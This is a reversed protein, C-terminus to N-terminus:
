MTIRRIIARLQVPTPKAIARITTAILQFRSPLDYTTVPALAQAPAVPGFYSAEFGIAATLWELRMAEYEARTRCEATMGVLAELPDHVLQMRVFHM